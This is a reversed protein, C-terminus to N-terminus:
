RSTCVTATIVLTMQAPTGTMVFSQYTTAVPCLMAITTLAPIMIMVFLLLISASETWANIPRASMRMLNAYLTSQSVIEAMASTTPVPIETMVFSPLVLVIVPQVMFMMPQALIVMMVLYVQFYRIMSVHEM